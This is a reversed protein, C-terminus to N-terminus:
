ERGAMADREGACPHAGEGAYAIKAALVAEVLGGISVLDEIDVNEPLVGGEIVLHGLVEDVPQAVLLRRDNM